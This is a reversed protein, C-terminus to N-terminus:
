YGILSGAIWGTPHGAIGMHIEYWDYGDKKVHVGTTEVKSGNDIRGIVSSDLGPANRINAYDVADNQVKRTVGGTINELEADNIRNMEAM